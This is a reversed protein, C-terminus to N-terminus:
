FDEKLREIIRRDKKTPRGTGRDRREFGGNKMMSIRDYEEQPTLDNIYQSVLPAGVRSVPIDTVEVIRRMHDTSVSYTEGIAVNHSAKLPQENMKVQGARCAETALSRTKFLRVSWLFKDIRSSSESSM